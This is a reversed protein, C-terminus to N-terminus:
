EPTWSGQARIADYMADPALDLEGPWTVVGDQVAVLAFFGPDRLMAFIGPRTGLALRSLDVTGQTGDAFRVILTYEPVARVDTVHWPVRANVGVARDEGAPTKDRM